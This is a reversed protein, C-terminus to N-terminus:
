RLSRCAYLQVWQQPQGRWVAPFVGLSEVEEFQALLTDPPPQPQPAEWRLSPDFPRRIWEKFRVPSKLRRVFVAHVGKRNSYGPWFYFQNKPRPSPLCFVLPDEPLGARAEPLYFTMLSTIGYHDGIILVPRGEALLKRRAEAALAATEKWGRVRHLPDLNQPLVVGTARQLLRSDHMPVLMLLGLALGVAYARRHWPRWQNRREQWYVATLCLLPLISPAIWNLMVRSHLTWLLYVLFVPLGMSLTYLLRSDTRLHRLTGIVATVMAGFWVPNWLAAEGALFEGLYRLTPRWPQGLNADQAVHQATVWGHQWNWLLPPLLCILNILLALYPGPRRLHQRAAPWLAFWVAWCLWQLLATYKSLSGLGMWFGVWLWDRTRGEPGTARWGAVMALTWFLVNWPDVTMLTSGVALLPTTAVMLLFLVAGRAGIWGSLFRLLTWGLVAGILPAFFRVGFQTDGWLATSAWHSWAIWPPKSYYGLAPRKSWLWQYAEDESLQILDSAVYAWRGLLLAAILLYGARRWQLEETTARTADTEATAASDPPGTEPWPPILRPCRAYWLPFWRRGIRDWVEGAAWLGALAYGSGLIAGALVDSPYHVGNYVRSFAVASALPVMFRWSRRYYLALITAAAFWNFAHGSPMSKGRNQGSGVRSEVGELAAFPRPRGVAKKITNCVLGDGAPLLLLLMLLCLRARRGGRWLMCAALLIVAPYFLPHGSLISMLWDFFPNRLHEYVLRFLATDLAVLADM